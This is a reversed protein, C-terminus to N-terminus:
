LTEKSNFKKNNQQQGFELMRKLNDQNEKTVLENEEIFSAYQDYVFAQKDIYNSLYSIDEYTIFGNKLIHHSLQKISGTDIYCEFLMQVEEPTLQQMEPTVGPIVKFPELSDFNGNLANNYLKRFQLGEHMMFIQLLILSFLAVYGFAVDNNFILSWICCFTIMFANMCSTIKYDKYKHIKNKEVKIMLSERIRSKVKTLLKDVTM